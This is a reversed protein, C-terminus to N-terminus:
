GQRPAGRQWWDTVQGEDTQQDIIGAIIEFHSGGGRGWCLKWLGQAARHYQHWTASVIATSRTRSRTLSSTPATRTIPRSATRARM